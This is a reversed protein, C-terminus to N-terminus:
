ARALLDQRAGVVFPVVGICTTGDICRFNRLQETLEKALELWVMPHELTAISWCFNGSFIRIQELHRAIDAAIANEENLLMVDLLPCLISALKDFEDRAFNMSCMQEPTLMAQSLLEAQIVHSQLSM